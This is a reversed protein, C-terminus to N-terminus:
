EEELAAKIQEPTMDEPDNEFLEECDANNPDNCAEDDEVPDSIIPIPSTPIGANGPLKVMGTGVLALFIAMLLGLVAVVALSSFGRSNTTQLLYNTTLTNQKKSHILLWCSIAKLQAPM